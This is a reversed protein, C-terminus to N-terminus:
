KIEGKRLKTRSTHVAEKHRECHEKCDACIDTYIIKAGCCDSVINEEFYTDDSYDKSPDPHSM